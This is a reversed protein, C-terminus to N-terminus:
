NFSPAASYREVFEKMEDIMEPSGIAITARQHLHKVELDLIRQLQVTMAKGGAQEVIFSLPNCEYV